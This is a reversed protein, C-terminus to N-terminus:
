KLLLWLTDVEREFCCRFRNWETEKPPVSCKSFRENMINVADMFEKTTKSYLPNCSCGGLACRRVYESMSLGYMQAKRNIEKMETPSIRLKLNETRKEQFM